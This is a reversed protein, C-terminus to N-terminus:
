ELAVVKTIAEVARGLNREGKEKLTRVEGDGSSRLAEIEKTVTEMERRTFDQAGAKAEIEAKKIIEDADRRARAIIEDAERRAEDVQINIELEKERIKQLLSRETTM